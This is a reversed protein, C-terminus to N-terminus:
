WWDQGPAWQGPGNVWVGVLPHDPVAETPLTYATGAGRSSHSSLLKLEAATVELGTLSEAALTVSDTYPGTTTNVQRQNDPNKLARTVMRREAIAMLRTLKAGEEDSELREELDSLDRDNLLLVEAETLCFQVLETSEPKDSGIWNDLVYKPSAYTAAPETPETM